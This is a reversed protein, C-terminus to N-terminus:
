LRLELRLDYVPQVARREFRLRNQVDNSFHEKWEKEEVFYVTDIPWCPMNSYHVEGVSGKRGIILSPKKTLAVSHKGVQGSSGYVPFEGSEDRKAKTLGKGYSIPLVEGLSYINWSDPAKDFSQLDNNNLKM